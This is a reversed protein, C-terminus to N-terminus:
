GAAHGLRALIRSMDHRPALKKLESRMRLAMRQEGNSQAIQWAALRAELSWRLWHRHAADTALENFKAIADRYRGGGHSFHAGVVDVGYMELRSTIAARLAM